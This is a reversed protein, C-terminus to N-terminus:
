RTGGEYAFARRIFCRPSFKNLDIRWNLKQVSMKGFDVEGGKECLNESVYFIDFVRNQFTSLIRGGIGYVEAMLLTADILFYPYKEHGRIYRLMLTYVCGFLDRGKAGGLLFSSWSCEKGKYKLFSATNEDTATFFGFEKLPAEFDMRNVILATSDMWIGGFRDILHFRLLDSFAQIAIRKRKLLILEPADKGIFQDVNDKSLVYIKFDPYLRRIREFCLKVIEPAKELGGWWFFFINKDVEGSKEFPKGESQFRELDEKLFAEIEPLEAEIRAKERRSTRARNLAFCIGKVHGYTKAYGRLKNWAKKLKGM